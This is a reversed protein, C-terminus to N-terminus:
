LAFLGLLELFTYPNKPSIPWSNPFPGEVSAQAENRAARPSGAWKGGLKSRWLQSPYLDDTGRVM